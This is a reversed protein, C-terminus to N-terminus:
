MVVILEDVYSYRGRKLHEMKGTCCTTRCTGVMTGVMERSGKRSSEGNTGVMSQAALEVVQEM